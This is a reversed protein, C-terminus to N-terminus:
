VNDKKREEIADCPYLEGHWRHLYDVKGDAHEVKVQPLGCRCRACAERRSDSYRQSIDEEM